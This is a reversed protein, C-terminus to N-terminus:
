EKHTAIKSAFEKAEEETILKRAVLVSLDDQSIFYNAFLGNIKESTIEDSIYDILNESQFNYNETVKLFEEITLGDQKSYLDILQGEELRQAEIEQKIIDVKNKLLNLVKYDLDGSRYKEVLENDSYLNRIADISILKLEYLEILEQESLEDELFRESIYEESIVYDIDKGIKLGKKYFETVLEDQNEDNELAMNMKEFYAKRQEETIMNDLLNNYLEVFKPNLKDSITMKKLREFDYFDLLNQIMKNYEEPNQIKMSKFKSIKIVDEENIKGAQKLMLIDDSNLKGYEEIYDMSVYPNKYNEAVRESLVIKLFKERDLSSLFKKNLYRETKSTKSTYDIFETGKPFNPVTLLEELLEPSFTEIDRIRLKKIADRPSIKGQVLYKVLEESNALNLFYKTDKEFYYELIEERSGMLKSLTIIKVLQEPSIFRSEKYTADITLMDRISDLEGTLELFEFDFVRDEFMEAIFMARLFEKEESNDLYLNAGEIFKKGEIINKRSCIFFGLIGEKAMVREDHDTSNLMKALIGNIEKKVAKFEPTDVFAANTCEIYTLANMIKVVDLSENKLDEKFKKLINQSTITLGKMLRDNFEVKGNETIGYVVGTDKDMVVNKGIVASSIASSEAKYTIEKQFAPSMQAYKPVEGSSNVKGGRSEIDIRSEPMKENNNKM